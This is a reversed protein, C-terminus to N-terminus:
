RPRGGPPPPGGGGAAAELPSLPTAGQGGGGAAPELLRWTGYAFLVSVIVVAAAIFAIEANRNGYVRPGDELEPGQQRFNVLVYGLLVLVFLVVPVGIVTLVLNDVQQGAADDAATGPPLDADLVVVVVIGLASLGLWIFLFRRFHRSSRLESWMSSAPWTASRRCRGESAPSSDRPARCSASGATAARREPGSPSRSRETRRSKRARRRRASIPRTTPSAPSRCSSGSSRSRPRGAPARPRPCPRRSARSSPSM